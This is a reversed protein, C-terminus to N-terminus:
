PTDGDARVQEVAAAQASMMWTPPDDNEWQLDPRNRMAEAEIARERAALMWRGDM